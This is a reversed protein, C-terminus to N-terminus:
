KPGMRSVNKSENKEPDVAKTESISPGFDPKTGWNEVRTMNEGGIEREREAERVKIEKRKMQSTM